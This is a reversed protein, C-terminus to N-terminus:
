FIPGPNTYKETPMRSRFPHAIRHILWRLGSVAFEFELQSVRSDDIFRRLALAPTERYNPGTNCTVASAIGARELEPWVEKSWFGSPYCYHAVKRGTASEILQKCKVTDSYVQSTEEVCNLHAHSHAQVDVGEKSLKALEEANLYHWIRRSQLESLDVQLDNALESLYQQGPANDEGMARFKHLAMHSAEERDDRSVLSVSASGNGNVVCCQRLPTRLFLDRILFPFSQQPREVCNSLVYVTAPAKFQDLLPKASVLFNRLGDDFTLVVQRKQMRDTAHQSVVEDLSAFHYHQQLFKLRDCLQEPSVFYSPM